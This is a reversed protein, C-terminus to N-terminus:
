DLRRIEFERETGLQGAMRRAAALSPFRFARERDRTWRTVIAEPRGTPMTAVELWKGQWTDYIAHRRSM